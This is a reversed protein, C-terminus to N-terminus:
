LGPGSTRSVYDCEKTGPALGELSSNSFPYMVGDMSFMIVVVECIQVSKISGSQSIAPCYQVRFQCARGKQPGPM